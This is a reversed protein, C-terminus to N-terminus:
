KSSVPGVSGKIKFKNFNGNRMRVDMVSALRGGYQAPINGKFLDVKSILESHFTSFFGLAHSSNFLFGEDQQILNQDVDGGRVNFGGAGEGITSVGATLLLSKVVDSEGMFSPLKEINKIDLTAVGIQVGEVKADPSEASITVEDLNVAAKEVRLEVDGSSQINFEETYDQYGLYTIKLERIGAPVELTFKGETDTITGQNTETYVISAGIIPEDTQDDFVYGTITANGSADLQDVNGISRMEVTEVAEEIGEVRKYYDITYVENVIKEPMIVYAYDRYSIFSMPSGLFLSEMVESLPTASFTLNYTKRPLELAKYYFNINYKDQITKLIQECNQDTFNETILVESQDQANISLCLFLLFLFTFLRKM